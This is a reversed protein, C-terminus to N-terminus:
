IEVHPDMNTQASCRNHAMSIQARIRLNTLRQERVEDIILVVNSARRMSHATNAIMHEKHAKYEGGDSRETQYLHSPMLSKADKDM